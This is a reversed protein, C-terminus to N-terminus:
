RNSGSQETTSTTIRALARRTAEVKIAEWDSSLVAASGILCAWASLWPTGAGITTALPMGHLGTYILRGGVIVISAWFLTSTVPRRTWMSALICRGALLVSNTSRTM